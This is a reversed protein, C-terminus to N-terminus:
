KKDGGVTALKSLPSNKAEVLVASASGIPVAAKIM